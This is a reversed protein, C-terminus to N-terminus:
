KFYQKLKHVINKAKERLKTYIEFKGFKGQKLVRIFIRYKLQMPTKTMLKKINENQLVEEFQNKTEVKAIESEMIKLRKSELNEEIQKSFMNEQKLIQEIKKLSYCYDNVNKNLNIKGCTIGDQNIFYNYYASNIVKVENCQLIAKTIFIMDEMCSTNIDFWFDKIADKKILYGWSHGGIKGSIIQSIYEEKNYIGSLNVKDLINNHSDVINYSMKVIDAEEINKYLEEISNPDIFDDSDMFFIYDGNAEEIGLNRTHSVGQNEKHIVRIRDDRKAYKNCIKKSEDTSGDNILIIELDRYTQNIVSFICKPLYKQANYVPIIISILQNKKM